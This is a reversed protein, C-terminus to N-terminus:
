GLLIHEVGINLALELEQVGPADACLAMISHQPLRSPDIHLSTPDTHLYSLNAINTRLVM